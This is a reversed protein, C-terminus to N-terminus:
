LADLNIYELEQMQLLKEFLVCVGAEVDISAHFEQYTKCVIVNHTM